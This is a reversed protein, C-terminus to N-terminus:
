ILLDLIKSINPLDYHIIFITSSLACLGTTYVGCTIEEVESSEGNLFVYQKRNSLYSKFWNLM